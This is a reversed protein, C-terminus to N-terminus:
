IAKNQPIMGALAELTAIQLFYNPERENVKTLTLSITVTLLEKLM